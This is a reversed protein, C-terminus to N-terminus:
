KFEKLIFPHKLAESASLRLNQDPEVLKKIFSVFDNDDCKLRDKITTKKPILLHMKKKGKGLNELDDIICIHYM